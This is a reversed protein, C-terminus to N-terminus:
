KYIKSRIIAHFISCILILGLDEPFTISHQQCVTTMYFQPMLRPLVTVNSSCGATGERQKFLWCYRWIAQVVSLVTVNRSCGATSDCQKFLRCYQWMAQVAPLVQVNSSCCATSEYQKFLRCYRWIEQVVAALCHSCCTSVDKRHSYNKKRLITNPFLLIVTERSVADCLGCLMEM